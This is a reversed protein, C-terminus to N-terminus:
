YAPSLTGSVYGITSMQADTFFGPIRPLKPSHLLARRSFPPAPTVPAFPLISVCGAQLNGATVVLVEWDDGNEEGSRDTLMDRRDIDKCPCGVVIGIFPLRRNGFPESGEVPVFGSEITREVSIGVGGGEDRESCGQPLGTDVVSMQAIQEIGKPLVDPVIAKGILFLQEVVALARGTRDSLEDQGEVVLGIRFCKCRAVIDTGSELEHVEPLIDSSVQRGSPDVQRYSRAISSAPM